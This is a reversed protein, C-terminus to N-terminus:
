ISIGKFLSLYRLDIQLGRSLEEEKVGVGYGAGSGSPMSLNLITDLDDNFAILPPAPYGSPHELEKLEGSTLPSFTLDDILMAPSSQMNKGGIFPQQRATVHSMPSAELQNQAHRSHSGTVLMQSQNLAIFQNHNPLIGPHRPTLRPYTSNNSNHLTDITCSSSHPVLSVAPPHRSPLRAHPPIHTSPPPPPPPTRNTPSINPYAQQVMPLSFVNAPSASTLSCSTLPPPLSPPAPLPLQTKSPLIPNVSHLSLTPPAQHSSNMVKPICDELLNKALKVGSAQCESVMAKHKERLSAILSRQEKITREYESIHKQQKEMENFQQKIITEQQQVYAMDPVEGPRVLKRIPHIFPRTHQQIEKWRSLTNKDKDTM